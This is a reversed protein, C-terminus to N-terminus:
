MFHTGLFEMQCRFNTVCTAYGNAEQILLAKFDSLCTRICNYARSIDVNSILKTIKKKKLNCILLISYIWELFKICRSTLGSLKRIPSPFFPFRTYIISKPSAFFYLSALVCWCIGYRSFLFRVPVALYALM